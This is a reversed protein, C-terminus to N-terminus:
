EILLFYNNARTPQVSCGYARGAVKPAHWLYRTNLLYRAFLLDTAARYIRVNVTPILQVMSVLFTGSM